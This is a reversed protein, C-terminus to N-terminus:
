QAKAWVQEYYRNVQGQLLKLQNIVEKNGGAYEIMLRGEEFCMEDHLPLVHRLLFHTYAVLRFPGFPRPLSGAPTEVAVAREDKIAEILDHLEITPAFCITYYRGFTDFTECSHSDSIGVIPIKQGKSKADVWKALQLNNVDTEFLENWTFGSILEVADFLRNDFLYDILAFSIYNANNPRWYPHALIGLGDRERIKQFTWMCSAVVFKDVNEPLGGLSDMISQVESRYTSEDFKYLETIGEKAGFSVFHVPNDPPHVEESPYLRIDVPLGEFKQIAELSGAYNRHDSLGMFDLGLRRCAGAVYAPSERGDSRYSHMHFDGKFPRLRFLDPKLSYIHFKGIEKVKNDPTIEEIRFIHEQEAEFFKTIVFTDNEPIIDEPEPKVWGTRATYRGVPTYTFKYTHLPKPFNEFRSIIRITSESDAPVIRPTVTFYKDPPYIRLGSPLAPTFLSQSHAWLALVFVALVSLIFSRRMTMKKM